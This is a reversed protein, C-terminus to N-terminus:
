NSFLTTARFRLSSCSWEVRVNQAPMVATGTVMVVALALIAFLRVHVTMPRARM